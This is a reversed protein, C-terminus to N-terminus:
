KCFYHNGVQFLPTGYQGYGGATFYLVDYNTRSIMEERVLQRVDDTVVCRNIRGNWMSTFQNKQYIVGHITNPFERADVRNLITSIVLRKGYESEGEAEAVTVLALLEIEDELYILNDEPKQQITTTEVIVPETISVTTETVMEPETTTEQENISITTETLPEEATKVASDACMISGCFIVSIAIVLGFIKKKVNNM